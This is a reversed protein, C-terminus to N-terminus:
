KLVDIILGDDTVTVKSLQLVRRYNKKPNYVRVSLINKFRKHILIEYEQQISKRQLNYQLFLSDDLTLPIHLRCGLWSIIKELTEKRPKYKRKM